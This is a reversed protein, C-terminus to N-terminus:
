LRVYHSTNWNDHEYYTKQLVANPLETICWPVGWNRSVEYIIEKNDKKQVLFGGESGGGYTQYYIADWLDSYVESSIEKFNRISYVESWEEELQEITYSM